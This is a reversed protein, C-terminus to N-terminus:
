DGMKIKNNGDVDVATNMDTKLLRYMNNFENMWIRKVIWFLLLCESDTITKNTALTVGLYQLVVALHLCSHSESFHYSIEYVFSICLVVTQNLAVCSLSSCALLTQVNQMNYAFFYPLSTVLVNLTQIVCNSHQVWPLENNLTRSKLHTSLFHCLFQHSYFKISECSIM